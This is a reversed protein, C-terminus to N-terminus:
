GQAVGAIQQRMEARKRYWTRKSLGEAEWPRTAEHSLHAFGIKRRGRCYSLDVASEDKGGEEAMKAELIDLTGDLYALLDANSIRPRLRLGLAHLEDPTM